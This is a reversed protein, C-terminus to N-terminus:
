LPEIAANMGPADGGSTLVAVRKMIKEQDFEQNIIIWHIAINMNFKSWYIFLPVICLIYQQPRPPHHKWPVPHGNITWSQLVRNIPFDWDILISKRTSLGTVLIINIAPHPHSQHRNHSERCLKMRLRYVGFMLTKHVPTLLSWAM